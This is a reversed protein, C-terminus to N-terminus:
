YPVSNILDFSKIEYKIYSNIKNKNKMAFDYVKQSILPASKGNRDKNNHLHHITESFSPSTKKHYNSIIIRSSLIGYDPHEIALSACIEAGLEDLQSTTVGDFIQNCIKQTIITPNVQLNDSLTKVRRLVKDFSVEESDGNRKKVYMLKM